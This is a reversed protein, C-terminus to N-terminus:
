IKPYNEYVNGLVFSVWKKLDFKMILKDHSWFLPNGTSIVRESTHKSFYRKEKVKPYNEYMNVLVFCM